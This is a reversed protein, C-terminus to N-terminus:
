KSFFELTVSIINNIDKEEKLTEIPFGISVARYGNGEFCVGASIGTDTYRM